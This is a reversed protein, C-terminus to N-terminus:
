PVRRLQVPLLFTPVRLRATLYRAACVTDESMRSARPLHSRCCLFFASLSTVQAEQVEVAAVREAEAAQELEWEAASAAAAAQAMEHRARDEAQAAEAEEEDAAAEALAAEAEEKAALLEAQGSELAYLALSANGALHAGTQLTRQRALRQAQRAAASAAPYVATCRLLIEGQPEDCGPMPALTHWTEKGDMALASIVVRGMPDNKSFRDWDYVDATIEAQDGVLRLEFAENWSPALSSKVKKTKQKQKPESSCCLEVFPDANGLADMPKLNRARVVEIRATGEDLEHYPEAM